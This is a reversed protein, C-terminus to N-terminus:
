ISSTTYDCAMNHIDDIAEESLIHTIEKGDLFIEFDDFYGGEAEYSNYPDSRLKESFHPVWNGTIVFDFGEYSLELKKM